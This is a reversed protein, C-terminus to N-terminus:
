CAWLGAEPQATAVFDYPAMPGLLRLEVRGAWSRGLDALASELGPRRDVDVLVAVHAADLEDTAPRVSTAICFPAVADVLTGTDAERKATIANSVIEGLQISAERAAGPDGTAAIVERLQEAKPSETLVERLVIDAAYRGKVVLQVRGDLEDLAAAFDKQNPELLEAGVADPGTLVAGFRLPLVPTQGAVGDLLRQHALLDQPRGLPQDTDIESILAGVTGCHVLRVRAPPDGV